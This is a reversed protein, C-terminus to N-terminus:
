VQEFEHLYEGWSKVFQGMGTLGSWVEGEAPHQLANDREAVAHVWAPKAM